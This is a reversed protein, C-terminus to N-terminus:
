RWKSLQDVVLLQLLKEANADEDQRGSGVHYEHPQNPVCLRKCIGCTSVEWQAQGM